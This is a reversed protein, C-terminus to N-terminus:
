RETGLASRWSLRERECREENSAKPREGRQLAFARVRLRCTCTTQPRRAVTRTHSPRSRFATRGQQYGWSMCHAASYNAVYFGLDELAALTISSVAGQHGYSMVDDRM